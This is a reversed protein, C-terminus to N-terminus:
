LDIRVDEANEFADMEGHLIASAKQVRPPQTRTRYNKKLVIVSGFPFGGEELGKPEEIRSAYDIWVLV